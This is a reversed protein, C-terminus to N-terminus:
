AAGITLGGCVYHTQGTVFGCRPDIFYAVAHAVEEPRGVRGVPIGKMLAQTATDSPDNAGTFMETAIPGPAIANVTIGAAGLELAWTRTMGILGAKTMGYVSRGAKGLAARSAINVVRGAGGARMGPLLAQTFRIAVEVNLRVAEYLDEERIDELRALPVMGVNNVLGYFPTASVETLFGGLAAKDSLDVSHFTMGDPLTQPRTRAAGVVEYGEALLRECVAKGIGKSAGTVLVRKGNM